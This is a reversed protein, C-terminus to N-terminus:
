DGQQPKLIPLMWEIPHQRDVTIHALCPTGSYLYSPWDEDVPEVIVELMPGLASQTGSWDPEYGSGHSLRMRSVPFKGALRVRGRLYRSASAEAVAHEIRVEQGRKVRYGDAAPVYVTAVLPSRSSELTLLITQATVIDGEFVAIDLVRGDVPSRISEREEPRADGYPTVRILEAGEQVPDGVQVFVWSVAGDVPTAVTKIGGLRTLTGQGEVTTVIQGLVAWAMAILLLLGIGLLAIWARPGTVAMLQDLQQQAGMRELAENRYIQRRM